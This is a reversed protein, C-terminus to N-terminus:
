HLGNKSDVHKTLLVENQAVVRNVHICIDKKQALKPPFPAKKLPINCPSTGTCAPSLPGARHHTHDRGRLVSFPQLLPNSPDEPAPSQKSFVRYRP